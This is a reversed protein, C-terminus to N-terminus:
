LMWVKTSLDAHAAKGVHSRFTLSRVCRILKEDKQFNKGSDSGQKNIHWKVSHSHPLPHAQVKARQAPPETLLMRSKGTKVPAAPDQRGCQPWSFHRLLGPLFTPPPELWLSDDHLSHGTTNTDISKDHSRLEAKWGGWEEQLFPGKKDWGNWLFPFSLCWPWCAEWSPM